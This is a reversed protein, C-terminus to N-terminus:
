RPVRRGRWLGGGVLAHALMPALAHVVTEEREPKWRQTVAIGSIHTAAHMIEHVLVEAVRTRPLTRRLYITATDHDTVAECGCTDDIALMSDDPDVLVVRYVASGLPISLWPTRTSM